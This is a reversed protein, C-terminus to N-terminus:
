SSVIKFGSKCAISVLGFIQFKSKPNRPGTVILSNWLTKRQYHEGQIHHHHLVGYRGREARTIPQGM